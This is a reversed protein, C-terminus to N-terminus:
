YFNIKLEKIKAKNEMKTICGFIVIMANGDDNTHSRSCQMRNKKMVTVFDFYYYIFTFKRVINTNLSSLIEIFLYAIWFVFTLQCLDSSIKVKFIEFLILDFRYRIKVKFLFNYYFHLTLFKWLAIKKLFWCGCM